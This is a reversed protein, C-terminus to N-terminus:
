VNLKRLLSQYDDTEYNYVFDPKIMKDYAKILEIANEKVGDMQGREGFDLLRADSPRCYVITPKLVETLFWGVGPDLIRTGRCIPGYIPESIVAWRDMILPWRQDMKYVDLSYAIIDEQNRPRQRNNILVRKLDEALQWALTSKGSNDPGEVIIM